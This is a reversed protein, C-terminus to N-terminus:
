VPGYVRERCSARGIEREGGAPPDAKFEFALGGTPDEDRNRVPLGASLLTYVLRRKAAELRYWAQRVGPERLDPIVRTLRCSLCLPNSDGADVVWNCVEQETYNLCLRYVREAAAPLPSRWLNADNVDADLSDVPSRFLM